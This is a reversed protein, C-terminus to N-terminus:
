HVHSSSSCRCVKLDLWSERLWEHECLLEATPRDNPDKQLCQKLFDQLLETCGEPLPPIDDEVIRFM